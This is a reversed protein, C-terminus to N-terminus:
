GYKFKVLIWHFRKKKKFFFFPSTKQSSVCFLLVSTASQAGCEWVLMECLWQGKEVYILAKNGWVLFWLHFLLRLGEGGVERLGVLGELHALTHSLPVLTNIPFCIEMAHSTDRVCASSTQAEEDGEECWDHTTDATWLLLICAIICNSANKYWMMITIYGIKLRSDSGKYM